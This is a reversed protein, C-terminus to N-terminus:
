SNQSIIRNFFNFLDSRSFSKLNNKFQKLIITPTSDPGILHNIKLTNIIAEVDELSLHSLFFSKKLDNTSTHILIKLQTQYKKVHKVAVSSSFKNFHNSIKKDDTTTEYDINLCINQMSKKNTFSM